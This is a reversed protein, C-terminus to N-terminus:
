AEVTLPATTHHMTEELMEAPHGVLDSKEEPLESGIAPTASLGAVVM